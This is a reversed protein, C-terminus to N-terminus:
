DNFDEFRYETVSRFIEGKKLSCSPFEKENVANPFAQTELCVGYRKLYSVGKKGRDGNLFNGTYLQLAPRDTFCRMLINNRASSLVAVERFGDGRLIFNHDYGNALELQSYEDNIDKGIFKAWNFDLPSGKVPLFKGTPILSKDIPTYYDARISLFMNDVPEESNLNFYTHNTLNVVTDKDSVAIYEIGLNDGEVYYRVGVLLNGPFGEEGDPSLRKFRIESDSYSEVEWVFKDFGFEGGHLTNNGDNKFLSYSRRGLSFKGDRIRNAVRGITAGFYRNSTEYEEATDYGLAVDFGRYRISQVTAGYDLLTVELNGGRIVYATVDAGSSLTGFVFKGM